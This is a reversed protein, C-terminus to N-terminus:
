YWFAFGVGFSTVSDTYNSLTDMPGFHAKAFLPLELTGDFFRLQAILMVDASDTDLMEEGITYETALTLSPLWSSEVFDLKKSLYIRVVDYDQFSPQDGAKSGWNVDSDDDLYAKLSVKYNNADRAINMSGVAFSLYDASRSISDFFEDDGEDYAVVTRLAGNDNLEDVDKDQGNSRHEIGLDIFRIKWSNIDKTKRWDKQDILTNIHLAPNNMRNIVPSSDRTGMYFDFEGTYSFFVSPQLDANKKCNLANMEGSDPRKRRCDYIAYKFSYHARLAGDDGETEKWIIYNLGHPQFRPLDDLDEGDEALWNKAEPNREFGSSTIHQDALSITTMFFFSLLLIRHLIKILEMKKVLEM